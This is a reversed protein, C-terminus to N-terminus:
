NFKISYNKPTKKHFVKKHFKEEFNKQPHCIKQHVDKKQHLNTKKDSSDSSDRSDCSDSSDSGGCSDRLYSPLYNKAVM